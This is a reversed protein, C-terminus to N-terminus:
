EREWSGEGVGWEIKSRRLLAQLREDKEILEIIRSTAAQLMDVTLPRDARAAPVDFILPISHRVYEPDPSTSM